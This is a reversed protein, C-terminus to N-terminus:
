LKIRFFRQKGGMSYESDHDYTEIIRGAYNKSIKDAYENLVEADRTIFEFGRTRAEKELMDMLKIVYGRKQESPTIETTEIYLTSKDAEDPVGCTFGIITDGFKLIVVINNPNQFLEKFYEEGFSKGPFCEDELKSVASWITQWEYDTPKYLEPYISPTSEFHEM